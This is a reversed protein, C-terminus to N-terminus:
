QFTASDARAHGQIVESCVVATAKNCAGEGLITLYQIGAIQVAGSLRTCADGSCCHLGVVHGIPDIGGICAIRRGSDRSHGAIFDVDCCVLLQFQIQRQGDIAGRDWQGLTTKCGFDIQCVLYYGQLIRCAHGGGDVTQFLVPVGAQRLATDLDVSQQYPVFPDKNGAIILFPPDKADVDLIPSASRAQDPHEISTGGLLQTIANSGTGSNRLDMPGLEDIVCLVRTSQHPYPRPKASSTSVGNSLGLKTAMHAGSSVGILCIRNPDFDYTKANARIWRIAAEVDDM